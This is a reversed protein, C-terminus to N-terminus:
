LHAEKLTRRLLDHSRSVAFRILVRAPRAVLAPGDANENQEVTSLDGSTV